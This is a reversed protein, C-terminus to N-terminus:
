TQQYLFVNSSLGCLVYLRIQKDFLTYNLKVPIDIYRYNYKYTIENVFPTQVTNTSNDVLFIHKESKISYLCGLEVTIKKNLKLLCNVGTSFGFSTNASKNDKDIFAQNIPDSKLIRYCYDPSFSIGISMRKASLTDKQEAIAFFPLVIAIILKRIM